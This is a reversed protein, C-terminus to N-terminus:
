TMPCPKHFQFPRSRFTFALQTCELGLRELDNESSPSNLDKYIPDGCIPAGLALMQARIQHTRGTLLQIEHLFGDPRMESSKIEMACRQWGPRPELEVIKPPRAVPDIYHIYLGPIVAQRNRSRYFKEVRGLAFLRNIQRQASLTKAFILLGETLIDLRHTTLVPVSLEQELMFKANEVYNDLTPHTPMGAPKDLVLFDFNNEILRDSLPMTWGQYRKMRTHVRLLQGPTVSLDQRQRVGDVYVCGFYLWQEILQADAQLLIPTFEVAKLCEVLSMPAEVRFFCIGTTPDIQRM